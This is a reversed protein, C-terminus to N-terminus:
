RMCRSLRLVVVSSSAPCVKVYVSTLPVPSVWRPLTLDRSSICPPVEAAASGCVSEAFINPRPSAPPFGAVVLAARGGLPKVLAVSRIQAPRAGPEGAEGGDAAAESVMRRCATCTDLHSEIEAVRAAALQGDLFALVTDADLCTM